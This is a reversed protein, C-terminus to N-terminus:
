AVTGWRDYHELVRALRDEYNWGRHFTAFIHQVQDRSLGYLHAVLADLEAEMAPRASAVVSASSVGVASAWRNFREDKAAIRAAIEVVRQYMLNDAPPRPIPMSALLEFTLSLEVLRRAYWDFPISSLIGLLYAEDSESGARRLLYPAKHTMCVRSPVLCAIVTRSDTPRAVDRFVIRARGIPLDAPEQISMGFFASRALRTQTQAKRILHEDLGIEDAFGYPPGFDPDWLNISAGTIVPIQGNATSMDVAFLSRDTTANVDGQVPRFNFGETRGFAPHERMRRFIEGALPTPILPFAATGTWAAFESSAVDTLADRGTRYEAESHFPGAFRVRGLATRSAVTMAFTYRGDVEEFAWRNTNSIFCVDEFAGSALIDRRWRETSSGSLATRPLLLGIRGGERVLQWNRWAFAAFLDLHAAGIGPFPGSAVAARATNAIEVDREYERVLDPRQTQLEAMRTDREKTPMGRLGPFRLGWWQHAEVHLKEWPPNGLVVDFGSPERLFVEPFRVPFHAPLLDQVAKRIAPVIASKAISAADFEAPPPLLRLRVAIAADFLLRAPEAAELAQRATAQAAQSEERTSEKLAAADELLAKAKDLASRIAVGSFTLAGDRADPDLAEVAEDVTGIGTLSNAPVLQHDLSSM